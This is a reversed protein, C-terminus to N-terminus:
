KRRREIWEEILDIAMEIAVLATLAITPAAFMSLAIVAWIPFEIM